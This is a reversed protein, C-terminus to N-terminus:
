NERAQKRRIGRPSRDPKAEEKEDVIEYGGVWWEPASAVEFESGVPIAALGESVIRIRM